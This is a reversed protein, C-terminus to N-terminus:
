IEDLLSFDSPLTLGARGYVTFRYTLGSRADKRWPTAEVLEWVAGGFEPALADAGEVDVDIETVALIDALGLGAEYIQAGGMIWCLDGGALQAGLDRAKEVSDAVLAGSAEFSPNRTVVINERGGLPQYKGLSEWTKRGMIVPHGMTTRKFFAMDEPVHWAMTGDRGIARDHGQAWIMGLM